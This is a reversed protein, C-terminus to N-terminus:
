TRSEEQDSIASPVENRQSGPILFRTVSFLIMGYAVGGVMGSLVLPGVYERFEGVRHIVLLPCALSGIMAGAIGAIARGPRFRSTAIVAVISAGVALAAYEVPLLFVSFLSMVYSEIINVGVSPNAMLRLPIVVAPVVVIPTVLLSVIATLVVWEVHRRM